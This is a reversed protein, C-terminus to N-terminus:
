PTPQQLRRGELWREHARLSHRVAIRVVIYLVLLTGFAILVFLLVNGLIVYPYIPATLLM